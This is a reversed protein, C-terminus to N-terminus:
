TKALGGSEFGQLCVICLSCWVIRKSRLICLVACHERASSHQSSPLASEASLCVSLLIFPHRVSPLFLFFVLRLAVSTNRRILLVSCREPVICDPQGPTQKEERPVLSRFQSLFVQCDNCKIHLLRIYRLSIRVSISALM